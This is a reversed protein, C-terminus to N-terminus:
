EGATHDPGTVLVLDEISRSTERGDDWTVIPRGESTLNTVTGALGTFRCLVSTM